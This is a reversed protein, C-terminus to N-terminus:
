AMTPISPEPKRNAKKAGSYHIMEAHEVIRGAINQSTVSEVKELGPSPNVELILSGAHSRILNVGAVELKLAKAAEIAIMEEAPKLAVAELSDNWSSRTTFASHFSIENSETSSKVAAVVKGGVVITRIDEGFSESIFEQILYESGMFEPLDLIKEATELNSSLYISNGHASKIGKIVLDSKNSELWVEKFGELGKAIWTRPIPLGYDSLMQYVRFKSQTSRLSEPSNFCHAGRSELEVLFQDAVLRRNAGLRSFVFDFDLDQFRRASESDEGIPYSNFTYIHAQHDRKVLEQKLRAASYSGIQASLILAKM